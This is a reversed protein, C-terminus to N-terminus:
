EEPPPTAPISLPSERRSDSKRLAPSAFGSSPPAPFHSIPHPNFPSARGSSSLLSPVRLGAEGNSASPGVGSSLSSSSGKRQHVQPSFLFGGRTIKTSEATRVPMTGVPGLDTDPSLDLGDWGFEDDDDNDDDDDEDDDDAVNGGVGAGRALAWALGDEEGEDLEVDPDAERDGWVAPEAVNVPRLPQSPSNASDASRGRAAAGGRGSLEDSDSFSVDSGRGLLAPNWDQDLGGQVFDDTNEQNQPLGSAQAELVDVAPLDGADVLSRVMGEGGGPRGVAMGPDLPDLSPYLKDMGGAEASISTPASRGVTNVTNLASRQLRAGMVGGVAGSVARLGAAAGAGAAGAAATFRSLPIGQYVHQAWTRSRAPVGVPFSPIPVALSYGAPSLAGRRAENGGAFRDYAWDASNTATALGDALGELQALEGPEVRPDDRVEIRRIPVTHAACVHITRVSNDLPAYEGYKIQPVLYAHTDHAHPVKAYTHIEAEAATACRGSSFLTPVSRLRTSVSEGLGLHSPTRQVRALFASSISLIGSAGANPESLTLGRWLAHPAESRALARLSQIGEFATLGGRQQGKPGVSALGASLRAGGAEAPAPASARDLASASTTPAFHYRPRHGSLLLQHQVVDGRSANFQYLGVRRAEPGPTDQILALAPWGSTLASPRNQGAPGTEQLSSQTQAGEDEQPPLFRDISTSVKASAALPMPRPGSPGFPVSYAHLNTGRSTVCEKANPLAGWPHLAVTHTTGRKTLVHLLRSDSSWEMAAVQASTIGRYIQQTSFPLAPFSLFYEM